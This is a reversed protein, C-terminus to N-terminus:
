IKRIIEPLENNPYEVACPINGECGISIELNYNNTLYDWKIWKEDYWDPNPPSDKIIPSFGIATLHKWYMTKDSFSFGFNHVFADSLEDKNGTRRHIFHVGPRDREPIRYNMKWVEVQRTYINKTKDSHFESMAKALQDKRFVMDVEIIM